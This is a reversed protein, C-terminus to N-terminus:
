RNQVNVSVYCISLVLRLKVSKFTSYIKVIKSILWIFYQLISM